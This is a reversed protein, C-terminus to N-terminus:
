GTPATLFALVQDHFDKAEEYAAHGLGKYLVLKSGSIREAIEASADAGVVRDSDGGIVLAPCQITELQDYADHRLCAGAQILFRSFDKPKGIRGLVPYLFRMKKLRAESYSKKTTDIILRKYDGSEAMAIWSGAVSQLTENPRSATVALVLKEVLEPYDVALYQAIMGGQSLGMVVAKAMGLSKMARAQDTAMDKTSYGEDLDNKRSFVYVKFDQAYQRFMMALPLASGKVTKLADGLGPIMVLTKPGRGFSIYDMTTNEIKVSGNKANGCM